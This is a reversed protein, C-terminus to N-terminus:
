SKPFMKGLHEALERRYEDKESAVALGDPDIDDSLATLEPNVSRAATTRRGDAAPAPDSAMETVQNISEILAAFSDREDKTPPPPLTADFISDPDRGDARLQAQLQKQMRMEMLRIRCEIVNYLRLALRSRIGATGPSAVAARSRGPSRRPAAVAPAATSWGERHARARITSASLGFRAAIQPFTAGGARLCRAEAWQEPSLKSVFQM